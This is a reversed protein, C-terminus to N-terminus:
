YGQMVTDGRVVVEGVEGPPLVRGEPDVVVVETSTRAIGVSVMRVADGALISSALLDKSMATITCPSEGQGYGNWLRAGL